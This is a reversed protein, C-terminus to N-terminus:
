LMIGDSEHDRRRGQRVATWEFREIPLLLIEIGAAQFPSCSLTSLILRKSGEVLLLVRQFQPLHEPSKRKIKVVLRVPRSAPACAIDQIVPM